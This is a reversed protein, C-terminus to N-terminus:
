NLEDLSLRSSKGVSEFPGVTAHLRGFLLRSVVLMGVAVLPPMGAAPGDVVVHAITASILVIGFGAYTWEKVERPVPLLLAGVGILKAVALEVRFYDPYGLHAFAKAFMPATLYGVASLGMFASFLITVVWYTTRVIRQSNLNM